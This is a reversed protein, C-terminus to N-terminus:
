GEQMAMERQPQGASRAKRPKSPAKGQRNIESLALEMLKDDTEKEEDLTEQLLNVSEQDGLLAAFTKACGYGAIEYHEIRQAAAILAADRVREDAEIEMAEKGEEILGEMAKCKKGKHSMHLNDFITELRRAQNKTQELHHQFAQQLNSSNSSKAMEPLAKILQHEANYLDQGPRYVPGKAHPAERGGGEGTPTIIGAARLSGSGPM